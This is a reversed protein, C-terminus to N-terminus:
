TTSMCLVGSTCVWSIRVLLIRLALCIAFSGRFFFLFVVPDRPNTAVVPRCRRGGGVGVSSSSSPRRGAYGLDPFGWRGLAKHVVPLLGFAWMDSHRAPRPDDGPEIGIKLDRLEPRRRRPAARSGGGDPWVGLLARRFSWGAALGSPGVADAGACGDEEERRRQLLCRRSATFFFCCFDVTHDDGRRRGCWSLRAGGSGVM